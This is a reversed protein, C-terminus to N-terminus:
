SSPLIPGNVDTEKEIPIANAITGMTEPVFEISFKVRKKMIEKPNSITNISKIQM